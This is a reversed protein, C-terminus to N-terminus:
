LGPSTAPRAAISPGLAASARKPCRSGGWAAEEQFLGRWNCIFVVCRAELRDTMDVNHFVFRCVHSAPFM